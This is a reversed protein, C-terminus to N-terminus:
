KQQICLSPTDASESCIHANLKLLYQLWIAKWFLPELKDEWCYHRLFVLM